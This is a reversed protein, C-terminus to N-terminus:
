STSEVGLQDLWQETGQSDSDGFLRPELVVAPGLQEVHTWDSPVPAFFELPQGSSPHRFRLRAAHLLQGEQFAPHSGGYLTDGVVPHGLSALHVRIQHTRGTELSCALASFGAWQAITRYHTRAFRGDLVLAMRLRHRPDRGLPAEITGSPPVMRGRVMALYDRDVQREQIAKSLLERARATRALVMLGSTDRDLRHVVGPRLDGAAMPLWPLLRHVVSDDWHGASPHATLNRPKNVVIVDADHYLVWSPWERVGGDGEPLEPAREEPVQAVLLQGAKLLYGGKQSRGDVTINGAAIQRQWFARSHDDWTKALFRDLRTGEGAEPVKVTRPNM